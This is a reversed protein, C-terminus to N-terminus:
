IPHIQEPKENGVDDSESANNGKEETWFCSRKREIVYEMLRTNCIADSKSRQRSREIFIVISSQLINSKDYTVEV